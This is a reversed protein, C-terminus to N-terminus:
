GGSPHSPPRCPQAEMPLTVYGSPNIFSSQQSGPGLEGTRSKGAQHVSTVHALASALLLATTVHRPVLGSCGRAPAIQLMKADGHGV